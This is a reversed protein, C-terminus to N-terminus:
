SLEDALAQVNQIAEEITREGLVAASLEEIFKQAIRQFGPLYVEFVAEKSNLERDKRAPLSTIHPVHDIELEDAIKDAFDWDVKKIEEDLNDWLYLLASENGEVILEHRQGELSRVFDGFLMIAAKQNEDIYKNILMSNSGVVGRGQFEDPSDKDWKLPATVKVDDGVAKYEERKFVTLYSPQIALLFGAKGVGFFRGVDGWAYTITDAPAHGNKIVNVMWSFANKSEPIDFQYKGDKMVTAGQSYMLARYLNIADQTGGVYVSGYYDKGLNAKAWEDVKRFVDPLEAYTDPLDVGAQELWSPRYFDIHGIYTVPLCWWHGDWMYSGKLNPNYLNAVEPPWMNDVPTVWNGAVLSSLNYAPDNALVADVSTDKAVLTTLSKPEALDASVPVAKVKIGTLEEFRAMNMATAIDYALGGSNYFTIEVVGETAEKWGEPLVYKDALLRETWSMPENWKILDIKGKGEEAGVAFPTLGSVLSIIFFIILFRKM